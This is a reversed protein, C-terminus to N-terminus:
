ALGISTSYLDSMDGVHNYCVTKSQTVIKKKTISFFNMGKCGCNFLNNVFFFLM